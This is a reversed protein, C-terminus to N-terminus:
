RMGVPMRKGSGSITSFPIRFCICMRFCLASRRKGFYGIIKQAIGFAPVALLVSVAMVMGMRRDVAMFFAGMMLPLVICAIADMFFHSFIMEVKAMDQLLLSSIDGPDRKKFFGLSLKRLHNGLRLRAKTSLDYSTTFAKVHVQIGLWLNVAMIVAISACLVALRVIRGPAPPLFLERIVLFLIGFPAGKLMLHLANLFTTYYINKMDGAIVRIANRM